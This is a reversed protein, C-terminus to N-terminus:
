GIGKYRNQLRLCVAVARKAKHWTSFCNLRKSLSFHEQGQIAMASIKLEPDDPYIERLDSGDLCGQNELPKRLFELGNWWRKSEILNDACLGCSANDAPNQATEM